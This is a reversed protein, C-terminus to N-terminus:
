YILHLRKILDVTIRHRHTDICLGCTDLCCVTIYDVHLIIWTSTGLVSTWYCRCVTGSIDHVSTSTNQVVSCQYVSVM